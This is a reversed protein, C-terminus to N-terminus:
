CQPPDSYHPQPSDRRESGTERRRHGSSWAGSGGAAAGAAAVNPLSVKPPNIPTAAERTEIRPSINAPKPCAPVHVPDSQAIPLWRNDRTLYGLAARYDRDDTAIPVHLDPEANVCDFQAIPDPLAAGVARGTVDYLRLM